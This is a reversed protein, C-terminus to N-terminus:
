GTVVITGTMSPHISCVFDYEGPEDFTFTFEADGAIRGSDFLGDVSTWTHTVPDLNHVLVETGVPVTIPDGFDFEEIDIEAVHVTVEAGTVAVDGGATMAPADTTDDPPSFDYVGDADADVHAMPFLLDTAQLPTDLAVVVDTSTGAPLLDSHGVVPGPGGDANAHVVVFGPAPLTVSAVVITTGDSTQADFVVEAPSMAPAAVVATTTAAIATTSTSADAGTDDDGCATLVLTATLVLAAFQRITM